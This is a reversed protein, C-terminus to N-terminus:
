DNDYFAQHRSQWDNKSLEWYKSPRTSGGPLESEIEGMYEFGIRELLRATRVNELAATECILDVGIVDFLWGFAELAGSGGQGSNQRDSRIAGGLECAGWQPWFQIDHYANVREDEGVGIMLLGEGREREELHQDIFAAVSDHNIQPPLTYIARSIKPDSLLETFIEVDDQTALRALGSLTQANSVAERIAQDKTKDVTNRTLPINSMNNIEFPESIPAVIFVSRHWVRLTGLM